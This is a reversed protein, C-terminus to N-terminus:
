GGRVTGVAPQRGVRLGEVDLPSSTFVGRSVGGGENGPFAPRRIAVGGVTTPWAFDPGVSASRRWAGGPCPRCRPGCEGSAPFRGSTVSRCKPVNGYRRVTSAAAGRDAGHSGAGCVGIPAPPCCHRGHPDDESWPRSGSPKTAHRALRIAFHPVPSAYLCFPSM